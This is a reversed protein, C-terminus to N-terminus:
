PEREFAASRTSAPLANIAQDSPLGWHAGTDRHEVAMPVFGKWADILVLALGDHSNEFDGGFQRQGDLPHAISSLSEARSGDASGVLLFAYLPFWACDRYGVLLVWRDVPGDNGLKALGLPTFAERHPKVKPPRSGVVLAKSEGHQGGWTVAASTVALTPRFVVLARLTGTTAGRYREPWVEAGTDDVLFHGSETTETLDASVLKLKPFPWGEGLAAPLRVDAVLLAPRDAETVHLARLPLESPAKTLAVLEPTPLLRLAEEYVSDNVPEARTTVADFRRQESIAQSPSPHSSSLALRAVLRLAILIVAGGGLWRGVGSGQREPEPGAPAELAAGSMARLAPASSLLSGVRAGVEPRARVKAKLGDQFFVSGQGRLRRALESRFVIAFEPDLRSGLETLEKIARAHTTVPEAAAAAAAALLADALTKARELNSSDLSVALEEQLAALQETTM